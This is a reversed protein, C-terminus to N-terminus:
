TSPGQGFNNGDNCLPDYDSCIETREGLAQLGLSNTLLNVIGWFIIILVFALLGYVALSRAKERSDANAGGAVFFRFANITFFLFALGLLFPIVLNNIFTVFAIIYQELGM